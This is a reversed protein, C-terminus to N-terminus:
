AELDAYRAAKPHCRATPKSQDQLSQVRGGALRARRQPVSRDNSIAVGALWLREGSHVM